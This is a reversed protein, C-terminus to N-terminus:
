LTDNKHKRLEAIGYVICACVIIICTIIPMDVNLGRVMGDEYGEQTAATSGQAETTVVAAFAAQAFVLVLVLVALLVAAFKKM